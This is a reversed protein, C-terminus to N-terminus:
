VSKENAAYFLSWTICLSILGSFIHNAKLPLASLMFVISCILYLPNYRNLSPIDRISKILFLLGPVVRFFIITLLGTAGFSCIIRSVEGEELYGSCNEHISFMTEKLAINQFNATSGLGAGEFVPANFFGNSIPTISSTIIRSIPDDAGTTRALSQDIGLSLKSNSFMPGFVLGAIMSSLMFVVTILLTRGKMSFRLRFGFFVIISFILSGALYTRSSLNVVISALASLTYVLPSVFIRSSTISRLSLLSFLGLPIVFPNPTSFLGPAKFAYDGFRHFSLDAAVTLNLVSTPGAVVQAVIMLSNVTCLVLVIHLARTILTKNIRPKCLVLTVTILPAFWLTIADYVAAHLPARVILDTYHVIALLLLCISVYCLPVLIRTITRKQYTCQALAAILPIFKLLILLQSQLLYKRISGELFYLVLFSIV